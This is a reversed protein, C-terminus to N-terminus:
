QKIVCKQRKVQTSAKYNTSGSAAKVLCKGKEM